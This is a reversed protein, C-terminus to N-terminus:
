ETIQLPLEAALDVTRKERASRRMAAEVQLERLGAVGPVPPPASARISALYADLSKEFSAGYQDWRSTQRSLAFSEHANTGYDLLEMDGDLGRFSVRGGTFSFTLEFLPFQFNTGSTGIITGSAGRETVFAAALDAAEIGAGVHQNPPSVASLEALPGAFMHVLDICHSWCAYHVLATVQIVEGLGRTQILQQARVSQDFFRYNFVMATEVGNQRANLLMERAHFFDAESVHAQDEMAVLPKEFFVRPPAHEIVAMGAEHHQMERTLVLVADPQQAVLDPITAFACGGFEVACAEAKEVTRNMYLLEVDDQRSLFPIYNGRAVSGTGVIGIKM